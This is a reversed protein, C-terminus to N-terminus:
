IEKEIEAVVEPQNFKKSMFEGVKEFGLDYFVNLARQRTEPVTDTLAKVGKEKATELLLEMAPRMYGKGHFESKIVIGMTAKGTEPNKNFNLYGVFDGTQKDLIYAYFFNPNNLKTDAWEKWKHEPFDICGTDYHYGEYSVDYGANYDMTAPDSMCKERFWLEQVNPIYLQINKM